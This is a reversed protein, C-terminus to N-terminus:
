DLSKIKRESYLISRIYECIIIYSISDDGAAAIPFSLCQLLMNTKKNREFRFFLNRLISRVAIETHAISCVIASGQQNHPWCEKEISILPFHKVMLTSLTMNHTFSFSLILYCLKLEKTISTFLLVFLIYCFFSFLNLRYQTHMPWQDNLLSQNSLILFRFTKM